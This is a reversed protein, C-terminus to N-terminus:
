LAVRLILFFLVQVMLLHVAFLNAKKFKCSYFIGSLLASVLFWCVYNFNPIIGNQWQWFQLRIAVPEMLWDLTLAHTAADVVFALAKYKQLASSQTILKQMLMHVATCCCYITIFWNVGILLPVNLWKVGFNIGYSYIGFLYGTNVGIVETFFGVLFCIIFFLLFHKHRTPATYLVLGLSLFINLPTLAAFYATNFFLMGVVGVAHFIIAVGTAITVKTNNNLLLNLM